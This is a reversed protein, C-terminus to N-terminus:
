ASRLIKKNIIQKARGSGAETLKWLDKGADTQEVMGLKELVNLTKKVGIKGSTMTKLVASKHGTYDKAEHNTELIFLDLLVSDLFVNRKNLMNKLMAPIIGRKPSFFLSFVFIGTAILVITPGTPLNPVVASLVAGAAGSVAGFVASLLTMLELKNTWQRAASPPAVILAVMLIVGVSQLGIVIAIVIAATLMTELKKSSFGMIEAYAPDFSFMKFEKWFLVAAALSIFAFISIIWVDETTMAAAMGFIYSELGAQGPLANQQILKLIFVGTGFFVALMLGLAADSKIKTKKMIVSVLRMAALGAAGAGIILILTSKEGTPNLLYAILFAATIGALSSHAVVDGVLSQRRLFAFSGLTGAAIGIVASGLAVTRLTHDTFIQSIIEFM